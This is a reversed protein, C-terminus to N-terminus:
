PVGRRKGTGESFHGHGRFLGSVERWKAGVGAGRGLGKGGGDELRLNM